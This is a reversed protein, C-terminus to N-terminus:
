RRWFSERERRRKLADEMRKGALHALLKAWKKMETREEVLSEDASSSKGDARSDRSGLLTGRARQFGM